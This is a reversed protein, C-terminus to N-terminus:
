HISTSPGPDRRFINSVDTRTFEYHSNCFECTVVIKSKLDLEEEIEKMGLMLISQECREISCTCAFQVHKEPFIEVCEEHYLRYLLTELDLTLLENETVTETLHMIRQWDDDEPSTIENNKTPMKQLMLGVTDHESMAFWIRTPLQESNKFYLEVNKTLSDEEWSVIGQYPTTSKEPAITIVMTGKKLATTLDKDTIDGEWQALGRIKFEHNSQTLLLTLPTKGQFQITLRGPIKITSRMLCTLTLAEGLLRQINMPYPHQSAITQYSQNLRVFEGRIAINRFLFRRIFDKM